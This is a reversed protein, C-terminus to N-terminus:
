YIWYALHSVSVVCGSPVGRNSPLRQCPLIRVCWQYRHALALYGRKSCIQKSGEHIDSLSRQVPAGLRFILLLSPSNTRIVCTANQTWTARPLGPSYLVTQSGLKCHSFAWRLAMSSFYAFFTKQRFENQFDLFEPLQRCRRVIWAAPFLCGYYFFSIHSLDFKQFNDGDLLSQWLLKLVSALRLKYEAKEKSCVLPIGTRQCYTRLWAAGWNEFYRSRHLWDNFKAPMQFHHAQILFGHGSPAHEPCVSAWEVPGIVGNCVSLRVYSIPIWGLLKNFRSKKATQTGAVVGVMTSLPRPPLSRVVSIPSM